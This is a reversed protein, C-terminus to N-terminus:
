NRDKKVVLVRQESKQVIIEAKMQDLEMEIVNDYINQPRLRALAVIPLNVFM